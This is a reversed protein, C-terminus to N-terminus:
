SKREHLAFRNGDPDTVFCSRCVPSDWIDTVQVGQSAFKERATAIDDVEFAASAASGPHIGISEGNGVGFTAGNVDFEAWHESVLGGPELGVVDRYFAVARPVDKVSYAVFAFEKIMLIETYSIFTPSCELASWLDGRSHLFADPRTGVL